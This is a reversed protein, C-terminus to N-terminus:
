GNNTRDSFKWDRQWASRYGSELYRKGQRLLIKVLVGPQERGVLRGDHLLCLLLVFAAVTKKPAEIKPPIAAALISVPSHSIFKASFRKCDVIICQNHM